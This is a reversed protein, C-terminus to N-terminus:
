AAMPDLVNAGCKRLDGDFSAVQQGLSQSEVALWADVLGVSKAQHLQLSQVMRLREDPATELSEVFETMAMAIQSRSLGYFSRLTHAVEMMILPALYLESRRSDILAAAAEAHALPTGVIMRVVVNTDLFIM